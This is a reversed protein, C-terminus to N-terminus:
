ENRDGYENYNDDFMEGREIHKMEHKYSARQQEKTRRSNLVIIPEYDSGLCVFSHIRGPLDKLIIPVEENM